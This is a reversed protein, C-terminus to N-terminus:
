EESDQADLVARDEGRRFAKWATSGEAHPNKKGRLASGAWSSQAYLVYGQQFPSLQRWERLTLLHWGCSECRLDDSLRRGCAPCFHTEVITM